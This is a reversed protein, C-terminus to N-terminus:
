SALFSFLNLALMHFCPLRPAQNPTSQPPIHIARETSFQLHLIEHRVEVEFHAFFM